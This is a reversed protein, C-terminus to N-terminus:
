KQWSDAKALLYLIIGLVFTGGLLVGFTVADKSEVSAVFLKRIFAVLALELFIRVHFKGGKLVDMQTHLLEIIM